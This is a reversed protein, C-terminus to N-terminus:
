PVDIVRLFDLVECDDTFPGDCFTDSPDDGNRVIVSAGCQASGIFEGSSKIAKCSQFRPFPLGRQSSAQSYTGYAYCREPSQRTDKHYSSISRSTGTTLIFANLARMLAM